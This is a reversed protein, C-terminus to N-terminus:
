RCVKVCFISKDPYPIDKDNVMAFSNALVQEETLQLEEWDVKVPISLCVGVPNDAWKKITQLPIKIERM